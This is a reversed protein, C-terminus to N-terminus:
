WSRLNERYHTAKPAHQAEGGKLALLALLFSEIEETSNGFSCESLGGGASGINVEEGEGEGERAPQAERRHYWTSIAWRPRSAPLVLRDLLPEVDVVSGDRRHLRLQGGDEGRWAPNLYYLCTLLRGNCGAGGPNDLHRVYRAGGGPYCACMPHSRSTVSRLETAPGAMAAVLEDERRLLPRLGPLCAEEGRGIVAAEDGRVASECHKTGGGDRGGGTRGVKFVCGGSRRLARVGGELEGAALPAAAARAKRTGGGGGSGCGEGCGEGCPTPDRSSAAGRLFRRVRSDKVLVGAEVHRELLESDALGVLARHEEGLSGEGLSGEGLSGEGLRGTREEKDRMRQWRRAWSTGVGDLYGLARWDKSAFGVRTCCAYHLVVAGEEEVLLRSSSPQPPRRQLNTLWGGGARHTSEEAGGSAWGHVGSCQGASSVRVASKGNSYFLYWAPRGLRAVSRDLWHQLAAKAAGSTGDLAAAPLSGEHQKFHDVLAFCDGSEAAAATPVAELNRYTFQWCGRASLRGFHAPAREGAAPVFLEDSDVHLLWDVGASACARLCHECNLRQRSQVHTEVSPALEDFSPLASYGERQRFAADAAFVTVRGGWREDRALALADPETEPADFYLYVHSFGAGHLHWRLFSDLTAITERQTSVVAPKAVSSM